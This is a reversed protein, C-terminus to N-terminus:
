RANTNEKLQNTTKLAIERVFAAPKLGLRKAAKVVEKYDSEEFRATINRYKPLTAM